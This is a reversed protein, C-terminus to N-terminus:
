VWLRAVWAVFLFVMVILFAGAFWDYKPTRMAQGAEM